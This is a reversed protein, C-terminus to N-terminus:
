QVLPTKEYWTMEMGANKASGAINQLYFYHGANPKLVWEGNTSGRSGATKNGSGGIVITDFCLTGSSAIVPNTFITTTLTATSFDLNRNCPVVYNGNSIVTTDVYGRVIADGESQWSVVLHPQKAGTLIFYGLYADDAVDEAASSLHYMGGDHIEHHEYTIGIMAGTMKDKKTENSMEWALVTSPLSCLILFLILKKM